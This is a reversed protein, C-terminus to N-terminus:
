GPWLTIAAVTVKIHHTGQLWRNDLLWCENCSLHLHVSESVAYAM